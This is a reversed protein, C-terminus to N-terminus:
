TNRSPPLLGASQLAESIEKPSVDEISSKAFVFLAILIEETFYFILRAGGRKGKNGLGLRRKYVPYGDLGPILHDAKELGGHAIKNLTDTVSADIDSHKKSLQKLDRTFKDVCKIERM